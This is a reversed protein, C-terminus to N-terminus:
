KPKNGDAQFTSYAEEATDKTLDQGGMQKKGIRHWWDKFQAFDPKSELGFWKDRDKIRGGKMHDEDEEEDDGDLSGRYTPMLHIKQPDMPASVGEKVSRWVKLTRQIQQSASERQADVHKMRNPGIADEGWASTPM